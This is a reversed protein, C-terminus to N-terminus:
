RLEQRRVTVKQLFYKTLLVIIISPLVVFVLYAMPTNYSQYIKFSMFIRIYFINVLYIELSVEGLAELFRRFPNNPISKRLFPIFEVIALTGLIYSIRVGVDYLDTQPNGFCLLLVRILVFGTAYVPISWISYGKNEFERKGFVTGIM